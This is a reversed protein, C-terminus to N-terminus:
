KPMAGGHSRRAVPIKEERTADDNQSAGNNDTRQVVLSRPVPQDDPVPEQQSAASSEIAAARNVNLHGASDDTLAKTDPGGAITSQQTEKPEPDGARKEGFIEAIMRAVDGTPPSFDFGPMNGTGTFDGQNEAIGIFDRIHPDAVWARRLAAQRLDAPVGRTLFPRIDTEATISEISPLKSLDFAPEDKDADDPKSNTSEEPQADHSMARDRPAADEPAASKNPEDPQAEEQGADHKRRAWRSLFGEPDNM